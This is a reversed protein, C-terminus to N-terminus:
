KSSCTYIRNMIYLKSNEGQKTLIILCLTSISRVSPCFTCSKTDTTPFLKSPQHEAAPLKNKNNLPGIRNMTTRAMIWIKMDPSSSGCTYNKSSEDNKTPAMRNKTKIRDIKMKLFFPRVDGLSRSHVNGTSTSPGNPTTTAASNM